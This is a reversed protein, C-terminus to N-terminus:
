WPSVFAVSEASAHGRPNQGEHTFSRRARDTALRRWIWTAVIAGSSRASDLRSSLSVIASQAAFSSSHTLSGEKRILPNESVLLQQARVDCV